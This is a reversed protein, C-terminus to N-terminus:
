WHHGGEGCPLRRDLDRASNDRRRSLLSGVQHPLVHVEITTTTSGGDIASYRAPDPDSYTGEYDNGDADIAIQYGFDGWDNEVAQRCAATRRPNLVAVYAFGCALAV